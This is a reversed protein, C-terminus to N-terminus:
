GEWQPVVAFQRRAGRGEAVDDDTDFIGLAENLRLFVPIPHCLLEVNGRALEIPGEDFFDLEEGDMRNKMQEPPVM